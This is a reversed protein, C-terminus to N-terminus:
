SFRKVPSRPMKGNKTNLITSSVSQIMRLFLSFAVASIVANFANRRADSRGTLQPSEAVSRGFIFILVYHCLTISGKVSGHTWSYVFIPRSFPHYRRYLFVYMFIRIQLYYVFGTELNKPIYM